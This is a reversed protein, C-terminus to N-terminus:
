MKKKEKKLNGHSDFIDNTEITPKKDNLLLLNILWVKQAARLYFSIEKCVIKETSHSLDGFDIDPSGGCIDVIRKVLKM